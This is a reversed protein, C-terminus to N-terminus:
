PLVTFSAVSTGVVGTSRQEMNKEGESTGDDEGGGGGRPRMVVGEAGM